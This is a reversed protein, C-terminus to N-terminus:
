RYPWWNSVGANAVVVDLSPGMTCLDGTFRQVDELSSLDLKLGTVRAGPVEARIDLAAAEVRKPAPGTIIVERAGSLCCLKALEKGIGSSGGTILIVQDQLASSGGSVMTPTPPTAQQPFNVGLQTYMRTAPLIGLLTAWLPAMNVATIFYWAHLAFDAFNALNLFAAWLGATSSLPPSTAVVYSM